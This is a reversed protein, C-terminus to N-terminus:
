KETIKKYIKYVLYILLVFGIAYFIQWVLILWNYEIIEKEM